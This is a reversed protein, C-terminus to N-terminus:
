LRDPDLPGTQFPVEVQWTDLTQGLTQDLDSLANLYGIRAGLESVQATVYSNEYTLVQFNTSRGNLLKVRETELQQRALDLAIRSQQLQRFLIEVNRVANLIATRLTQRSDELSLQQQRMAIRASVLTQDRTQDNLPITLTLGLTESDQTQYGAGRPVFSSQATGTYSGQATLNLTWLYNNEASKLSLKAAEMNLIAQRYAPSTALAIDVLRDFDLTVAPTDLSETPIIQVDDPLNLQNLLILRAQDLSNRSQSVSIENQALSFQSQVLDQRAMRGAEILAENVQVQQRARALAQVQIKLGESQQILSRYNQIVGTIQGILTSRLTWTANLNAIRAQVIPIQNIDFGGGQLLPLNLSFNPNGSYTNVGNASTGANNWGFTFSGGLPTNWTVSPSVQWSTTNSITDSTDRSRSWTPGVTISGTPVFSDEALLLSYKATIRNLYASRIGRNNRMLLLVADALSMSVARPPASDTAAPRAEGGLAWPPIARSEGAGGGATTGGATTGGATATSQAADASRPLAMALIQAVVLALVALVATLTPIPGTKQVM